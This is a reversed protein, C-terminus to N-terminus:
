ESKGMGQCKQIITRQAVFVTHMMDSWTPLYIEPSFTISDHQATVVIFHHVLSYKPKWLAFNM